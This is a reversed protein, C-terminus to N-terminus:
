RLCVSGVEDTLNGSSHHTPSGCVWVDGKSFRVDLGGSVEFPSPLPLSAILALAISVSMESAESAPEELLGGRILRHLTRQRM